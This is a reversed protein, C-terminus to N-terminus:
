RRTNSDLKPQFGFVGHQKPFYIHVDLQLHRAVYQRVFTDFAIAAVVSPGGARNTMKLFINPDNVSECMM